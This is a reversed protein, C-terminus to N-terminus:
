NVAVAPPPHPTVTITVQKANNPANQCTATGSVTVWYSTTITPTVNLTSTESLPIGTLTANNYWKFSPSLIAANNSTATLTAQYGLCVSINTASIDSAQAKPKVTITLPIRESTETCNARIAEVYFINNGLALSAATPTYSSSTTLATGGSSVNYWKYTTCNQTENISLTATNDQCISKSISEVGDITPSPLIIRSVEYVRLGPVLGVTAVGGMKIQVLNFKGYGIPVRLTIVRRNDGVTAGPLLSLSILGLSSSNIADGVPTSGDYLQINFGSLLSLNLLGGGPDGVIVQIVDGAVAPTKFVTTLYIKGLLQVGANLEAYTSPDGDAADMQSNISATADLVGGVLAPEVGALVDIINNCSTTSPANETIYAHYIKANVGLGLVSGIKIWIGQYKQNPTITLELEGVGNVLNVLAAGTFPTGVADARWRAGIGTGLAGTYYNLNEYPQIEVNDLVGLLSTPLSIKVTTPTNASVYNAGSTFSLYQTANILNLAGIGVALTSATAVNGDIANTADNVNAALTSYNQQIAAYKRLQPICQAQLSSCTAILILGTLLVSISLYSKFM